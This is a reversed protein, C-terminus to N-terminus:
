PKGLTKLLVLSAHADLRTSCEIHKQIQFVAVLADYRATARSCPIEQRAQNKHTKDVYVKAKKVNKGRYYLRFGTSCPKTDLYSTKTTWPASQCFRLCPHFLLLSPVKVIIYVISGILSQVACAPVTTM